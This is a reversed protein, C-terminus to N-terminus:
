LEEPLEGGKFISRNAMKSRANYKAAVEARYNKLGLLVTNLRAVEEKDSFDWESRPGAAVTFADIAEQANVIKLDTAQVDQYAEKFYEYNYIVNDADVTKAVIKGSQSLLGIFHLVLGIVIMIVLIGFFAHLPGKSIKKELKEWGDTGDTM